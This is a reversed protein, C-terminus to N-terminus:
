GEANTAASGIVDIRWKLGKEFTVVECGTLSQYRGHALVDQLLETFMAANSRANPNQYTSIVLIGSARLFGLYRDLAGLPDEIHPLVENFVIADFTQGLPPEYQAVDAVSFKANPFRERAQDIATPSLDIGSYSVRSQDLYRCLLGTGCGVDLLDTASRLRHVYGAILAYRAAEGPEDLYDWKGEAFM